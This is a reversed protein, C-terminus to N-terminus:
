NTKIDGPTVGVKALDDLQKQIDAKQATAEDIIMQQNALQLRLQSADIIQTVQISAKTADIKTYTVM